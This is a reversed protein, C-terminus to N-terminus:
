DYPNTSKEATVRSSKRITDVLTKLHHPRIKYVNKLIRFLSFHSKLRLHWEQRVSYIKWWINYFPHGLVKSLANFREDPLSDRLCVVRGESDIATISGKYSIQDKESWEINLVIGQRNDPSLVYRQSILDGEQNIFSWDFNNFLFNGLSYAVLGKEIFELGQLVHPHHGIIMDVGAEILSKAVERQSPSPFRYNELGWHMLLIVLGCGKKLKAVQNVTEAHDFWAAGPREATAYCPANVIVSSRALVATRVGKIEMILPSCAVERDEGAGVFDINARRLAEITSFLGEPGLDMVHNNALSVIQFGVEKMVGAWGPHGKLLCKGTTPVKGEFLPTELNGIVLDAHGWAERVNMFLDPTPNENMDEVFAIDGVASIRIEQKNIM